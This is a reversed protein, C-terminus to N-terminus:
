EATCHVNYFFPTEDCTWVTADCFKDKLERFYVFFKLVKNVIDVPELQNLTSKKLLSFNHRKCFQRVWGNSATFSTEHQLDSLISKTMNKIVKSTVVLGFEHQTIIRSYLTMEMEPFMM